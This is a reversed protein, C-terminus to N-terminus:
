SLVLPLVYMIREGALVEQIGDLDFVEKLKEALRVRRQMRVTAMTGSRSLSPRLAASSDGVQRTASVSLTHQSPTLRRVDPPRPTTQEFDEELEEIDEADTGVTGESDAEEESLPSFPQSSSVHLM